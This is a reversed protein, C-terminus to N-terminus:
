PYQPSTPPSTPTTSPRNSYSSPYPATPSSPPSAIPGTKNPSQINMRLPHSISSPSTATFNSKSSPASYSAPRPPFPFSPRVPTTQTQRTPTPPGWGAVSTNTRASANSSCCSKKTEAEQAVNNIPGASQTPSSSLLPLLVIPVGMLFQKGPRGTITDPPQNAHPLSRQIEKLELLDRCFFFFLLLM